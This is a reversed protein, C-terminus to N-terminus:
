HRLEALVAQCNNIFTSKLWQPGRTDSEEIILRPPVEQYGQTLRAGDSM